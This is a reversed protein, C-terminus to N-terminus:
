SINWENSKDKQYLVLFTNRIIGSDMWVQFRTRKKVNYVSITLYELTPAQCRQHTRLAQIVFFYKGFLIVYCFEQIEKMM